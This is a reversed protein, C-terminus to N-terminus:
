LNKHVSHSSSVKKVTQYFFMERIAGTSKFDKFYRQKVNLHTGKTGSM